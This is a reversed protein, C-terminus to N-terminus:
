RGHRRILWIMLAISGGVFGLLWLISLFGSTLAGGSIALLVIGLGWGMTWIWFWRDTSDSLGGIRVPAEASLSRRTMQTLKREVRRLHREEKKWARLTAPSPALDPLLDAMQVSSAPHDETNIVQSGPPGAAASLTLSVLSHILFLRTGYVFPSM